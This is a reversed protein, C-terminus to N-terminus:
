YPYGNCSSSQLRRPLYLPLVFSQLVVDAYLGLGQISNTYIPYQSTFINKTLNFGMKWFGGLLCWACVSPVSAFVVISVFMSLTNLFGNSIHLYFDKYLSVLLVLFVVM